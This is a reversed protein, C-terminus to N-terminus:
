KISNITKFRGMVRECSQKLIEVDAFVRMLMLAGGIEM